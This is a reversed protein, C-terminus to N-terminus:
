PCPTGSRSFSAEAGRSGLTLRRRTGSWLRHARLYASRLALGSRPPGLLEESRAFFEEPSILNLLKARNRELFAYDLEADKPFPFPVQSGRRVIGVGWDTDVTWMALDPRSIRLRAFAKGVTGNWDSVGDYEEVQCREEPPNCDHLVM